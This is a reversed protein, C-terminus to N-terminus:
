DSGATRCLKKSASRDQNRSSLRRAASGSSSRSQDGKAEIEVVTRAFLGRCHDASGCLMASIPLVIERLM